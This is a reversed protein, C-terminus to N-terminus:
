YKYPTMLTVNIVTISGLSTRASGPHANCVPQWAFMTAVLNMTKERKRKKREKEGEGRREVSHPKQNFKRTM